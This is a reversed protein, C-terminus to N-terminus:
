GGGVFMDFVAGCDVAYSPHSSVKARKTQLTEYNAEKYFGPGPVKASEAGSAAFRRVSSGFPMDYAAAGKRNDKTIEETFGRTEFSGPGPSDDVMVRNM